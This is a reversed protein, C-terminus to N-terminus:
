STHVLMGTAGTSLADFIEKRTELRMLFRLRGPHSKTREELEFEIFRHIDPEIDSVTIWHRDIEMSGLGRAYLADRIDEEDRTSLLLKLTTTKGSLSRSLSELFRLMTESEHRNECDHIGDVLIFVRPFTTIVTILSELLDDESPRRQVHGNWQLLISEMMDLRSNYVALLAQHLLSRM